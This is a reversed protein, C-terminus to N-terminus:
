KKFYGEKGVTVAEVDCDPDEAANEAYISIGYKYSTFGVYEEEEINEDFKKMFDLCEHYNMSMLDEGEFIVECPDSLIVYALKLDDTFYGLMLGEDRYHDSVFETGDLTKEFVAKFEFQLTANVFERDSGFELNGVSIFPKIIFGM